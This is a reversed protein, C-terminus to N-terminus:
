TAMDVYLLKKLNVLSNEIEQALSLFNVVRLESLKSNKIEQALSLFDGIYSRLTPTITEKSNNVSVKITYELDLM